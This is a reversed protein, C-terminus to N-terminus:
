QSQPVFKSTKVIEPRLYSFYPRFCGFQLALPWFNELFPWFFCFDPRNSSSTSFMGEWKCGKGGAHLRVQRHRLRDPHGEWQPVSALLTCHGWWNKSLTLVKISAVSFHMCIATTKTLTFRLEFWPTHAFIHKGPMRFGYFRLNKGPPWKTKMFHQSIQMSAM